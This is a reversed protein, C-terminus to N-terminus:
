FENSFDEKLSTGIECNPGTFFLDSCDCSYNNRGDICLGGHQCPSSLCEDIDTDCYQGTFGSSCICSERGVNLYCTADNQCPNSGNCPETM